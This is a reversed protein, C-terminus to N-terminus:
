VRRRKFAKLEKVPMRNLEPCRNCVQFVDDGEMKGTNEKNFSFRINSVIPVPKENWQYSLSTYSLGFGFPFSVEGKLYCNTRGQMFYHDYAPLDNVSRYFIVPLRRSLSREGFIIEALATGGQEGPYYALLIADSYTKLSEIDIASGANLVLVLPKKNASLQQLLKIHTLPFSFDAKDGGTKSLFVDHEEGELSPTLGLFAITGDAFGAAWLGGFRATDSDDYGLEYRVSISTAADETTGELFSLMNGSVNNYNGMLAFLSPANPAIAKRFVTAQGARGVGHLVEYWWNYAPIGLRDIAKSNYGHLSIKKDVSIKSFLDDVKQETSHSTDRFIPIFMSGDNMVETGSYWKVDDVYVYNDYLPVAGRGGPFSEFSIKTIRNATEERVFLM